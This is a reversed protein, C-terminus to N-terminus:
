EAKDSIILETAYKPADFKNYLANGGLGGITEQASAGSGVWVDVDIFDNRKKISGGIDQLKVQIYRGDTTKLWAVHNKYKNYIQKPVAITGIDPTMGSKTWGRATAASWEKKSVIWRGNEKVPYYHYLKDGIKKVGSGETIVCKEFTSYGGYDDGLCTFYFTTKAKYTSGQPKNAGEWFRWSSLGTDIKKKVEIEAPPLPESILEPPTRSIAVAPKESLVNNGNSDGQTWGYGSNTETIETTGAPALAGEKLKKLFKTNQDYSGSYTEEAFLKEYVAKRADKNPYGYGMDTFLNSISKYDGLEKISPVLVSKGSYAYSILTKREEVLKMPDIRIKGNNINYDNFILVGDSKQSLLFQNNKKMMKNGEAGNYENENGFYTFTGRTVTVTDKDLVLKASSSKSGSLVIRQLKGDKLAFDIGNEADFAYEKGEAFVKGQGFGKVGAETKEFRGKGEMEISDGIIRNDKMKIDKFGKLSIDEEKDNIKRVITFGGKDLMKVHKIDKGVTKLDLEGGRPNVLMNGDKIKSGELMGFDASTESGLQQKIYGIMKDKYEATNEQIKKIEDQSLSKEEAIAVAMILLIIILAPLLKM